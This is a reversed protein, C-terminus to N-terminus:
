SFLYVSFFSSLAFCICLGLDLHKRALSPIPPEKRGLSPSPSRSHKALTGAEDEVGTLYKRGGPPLRPSQWVEWTCSDQRVGELQSPRQQKNGCPGRWGTPAFPAPLLPTSAGWKVEDITQKRRGKGRWSHLSSLHPQLSTSLCTSSSYGTLSSAVPQSTATYTSFYYRNVPHTSRDSGGPGWDPGTIQGM